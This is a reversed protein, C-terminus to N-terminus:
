YCYMQVCSPVNPLDVLACLECDRADNGFGPLIVVPPFTSPVKLVMSPVHFAQAIGVTGVLLPVIRWLVGM